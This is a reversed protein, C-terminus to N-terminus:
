IITIKNVWMAAFFSNSVGLVCFVIDWPGCLCMVMQYEILTFEFLAMYDGVGSKYLDFM